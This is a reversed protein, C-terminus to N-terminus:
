ALTTRVREVIEAIPTDSKVVFARAGLSLAKAEDEEQSLNSMVIVPISINRARLEALVQFGDMKPMILDCLILDYPDRALAELGSMGNFVATVSFGARGLKLELAHAMPKEDEIM